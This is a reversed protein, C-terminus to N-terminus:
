KAYLIYPTIYLLLILIIINQNKNFNLLFLAIFFSMIMMLSDGFIAGFKVENGYEKFLDLMKNIGYPISYFLGAFILDHVIQVILLLILFKIISYKKFIKYYLFRTIIFGILIITVDALMGSLRYDQYWKKLYNSNILNTYYLIFMFTLDTLIIANLLPLYDNINEFRSIDHNIM